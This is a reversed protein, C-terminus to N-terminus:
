ETRMAEVRDVVDVALLPQQAVAGHLGRDVRREDGSEVIQREAVLPAIAGPRREGGTLRQAARQAHEKGIAARREPAEPRAHALRNERRQKADELRTADRELEQVLQLSDGEVLVITVQPQLPQAELSGIRRLIEGLVTREIMEPAPLM